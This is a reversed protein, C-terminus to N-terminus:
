PAVVQRNGRGEGLTTGNHISTSRHGTALPLEYCAAEHDNRTLFYRGALTPNTWTKGSLAPRRALEVLKGPNAEVLVVDGGEAQILLLDGVLLLQGHGYRGQKWKSSGDKLDICQLIGNDLGYVHDQYAVATTFKTKMTRAEWLQEPAAWSGDSNHRARILTSGKDYGTTILIQDAKGPILLPQSAAIGEGNHWPFHWLVDGTEPDHATLGDSNFLLIQPVGAVDVLMPSSYSARAQGKSWVLKGDHRDYAALSLGDEGTPCVIVYEATALPSGCVGHLLAGAHHDEQINTQWIKEGTNAALCNLTGKAGITYVSKGFVTPTGRPGNGGLASRYRTEDAHVWAEQGTNLDYCVVCEYDGRQEQTIAAQGVVAFGSWGEGVDIKWHASWPHKSWDRALKPGALVANRHPGGFQTFEDEGTSGIDIGQRTATATALLVAVGRQPANRYNFDVQAAGTLGDVRFIAVFPVIALLLVALVGLRKTWTIPAFFMWATWVLWVTAPVFMAAVTYPSINSGARRVIIGGLVLTWLLGVALGVMPAVNRGPFKKALRFTLGIVLVVGLVVLGAFFFEARRAMMLYLCTRWLAYPLLTVTVLIAAPLRLKASLPALTWSRAFSEIPLDEADSDFAATAAPESM